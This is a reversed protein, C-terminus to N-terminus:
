CTSARTVLATLEIIFLISIYDSVTGTGVREKLNIM